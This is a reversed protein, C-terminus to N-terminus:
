KNFLLMRAYDFILAVSLLVSLPEVFATMIGFILNEM